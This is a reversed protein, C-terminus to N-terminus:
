DAAPYPEGVYSRVVDTWVSETQPSREAAYRYDRTRAYHTLRGKLAQLRRRGDHILFVAVHGDVALAEAGVQELHEMCLGDSREYMAQIREEQLATLADLRSLDHRLLAEYM